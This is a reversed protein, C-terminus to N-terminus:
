QSRRRFGPLNSVISGDNMILTGNSEEVLSPVSAYRLPAGLARRPAIVARSSEYM